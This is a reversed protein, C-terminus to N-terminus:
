QSVIEQGVILNPKKKEERKYVIRHTTKGNIISKVVSFRNNTKCQISWHIFLISKIVDIEVYLISCWFTNCIFATYVQTFQSKNSSFQKCWESKVDFMITGSTIAIPSINWMKYFNQMQTKLALLTALCRWFWERMKM